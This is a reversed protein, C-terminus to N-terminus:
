WRTNYPRCCRGTVNVGSINYGDVLLEVNGGSVSYGSDLLEVNM